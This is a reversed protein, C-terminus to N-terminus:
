NEVANNKAQLLENLRTLDAAYQETLQVIEENLQKIKNINNELEQHTNELRNQLNESIEKGSFELDAAQQQLGVRKQKLQSQKDTIEVLQLQRHNISEDRADILDQEKSYSALLNQDNISQQKQQRALQKQEIAVKEQAIIAQRQAEAEIQKQQELEIIQEPTLAPEVHEILRFSQDDIIDYGKQSATPPLNRSLTPVGNEDPFRYLKGAITPSVILSLSIALSANIIIKQIMM